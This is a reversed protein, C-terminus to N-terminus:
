KTEKSTSPSMGDDIEQLGSPRLSAAKPRCVFVRSLPGIEGRKALIDATLLLTTLVELDELDPILDTV